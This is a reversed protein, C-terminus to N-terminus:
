WENVVQIYSGENLIRVYLWEDLTCVIMGKLGFMHNNMEHEQIGYQWFRIKLSRLDVCDYRNLEKSYAYFYIIYLVSCIDFSLAWPNQLALLPTLTCSKVLIVLTHTMKALPVMILASQRILILVRTNSYDCLM